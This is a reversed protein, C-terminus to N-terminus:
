LGGCCEKELPHTRAEFPVGAAALRRKFARCWGPSLADIEIAKKAADLNRKDFHMFQHIDQISMGDSRTSIREIKMGASITGEELVRLYFGVLGSRLFQNPFDDLGGMRIGLKFCPVRPQTVQFVVNGMQLVDGVYVESELMGEVTFNEGFQGFSFDVRELERAWHTYHEIPYAYVAKCVGGHSKLDAQRDDQLNLKRVETPGSAPEKFIGTSVTKGRHTVTKTLSLNISILEMSLPWEQFTNGFAYCSVAAFM